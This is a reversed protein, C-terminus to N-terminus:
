TQKIFWKLAKEIRDKDEIKQKSKYYFETFIILPEDVQYYIFTLRFPSHGQGDTSSKCRFRKCVYANTNLGKIKSYKKTQTPIKYHNDKLDQNLVKKFRKFDETLSPCKKDLKDKDKKFKPYEIFNIESM